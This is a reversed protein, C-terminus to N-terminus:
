ETPYKLDCANRAIAVTGKSLEDRMFFYVMTGANFVSKDQWARVEPSLADASRLADTLPNDLTCVDRWMPVGFLAPDARLGEWNKAAVFQDYTQVYHDKDTRISECTVRAVELMNAKSKTFAADATTLAIPLPVAGLARRTVFANFFTKEEDPTRGFSVNTGGNGMWVLYKAAGNAGLGGNCGTTGTGHDFCDVNAAPNDRPGVMGDLFDAVRAGSTSRLARAAGTQADGRVGHCNACVGAYIHEGPNTVYLQAWPRVPGGDGTPKVMWPEIRAPPPANAPFNCSNYRNDFYGQYYTKKALEEHQATIARDRIWGDLKTPWDINRPLYPKRETTDELVWELGSPLRCDLKARAEAADAAALGDAVAKPNDPAEVGPNGYDRPVSAWWRAMLTSLRCDVGPVNLPMHFNFFATLGNPDKPLGFADMDFAGTPLVTRAYTRSRVLASVVSAPSPDSPDFTFYPSGDAGISKFDFGFVTGGPSLDFRGLSPNSRVAYGNENHCHACNGVAYAQVRLEDQNRPRRPLASEELKPLDSAAIGTVVGYAMLRSAMDLESAGVEPALNGGEGKPRRHIQTPTFGLIFNQGESGTHCAICRESGPVAYSRNDQSIESIRYPRVYDPFPKGNLYTERQDPADPNLGTGLLKASTEDSNWVYSGFVADEAKERTLIIRTEMKRYRTVGDQEVVAKFFTKYFRTNPPIVFHKTAPDYTIPKGAPVHVLRLKQADDSWLPYEPAYAFTGKRALVEADLSTVDTEQLKVPLDAFSKVAAFRADTVDDRGAIEPKPICSGLDTLAAGVSASVQFDGTNVSGNGTPLAYTTASCGQDIWAQLRRGLPQQGGIGKPMRGEIMMQAPTKGSQGKASCLGERTGDYSFGGQQAPAKHCNGCQIEIEGSLNAFTDLAEQATAATRQPIHEHSEPPTCVSPGAEPGADGSPTASDSGGCSAGALAAAIMIILLAM